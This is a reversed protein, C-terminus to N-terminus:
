VDNWIEDDIPNNWFDLSSDSAILLDEFGEEVPLIIIEARRGRLKEIKPLNIKGDEGINTYFKLAEM